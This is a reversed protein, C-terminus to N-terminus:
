QLKRTTTPWCDMMWNESGSPSAPVQETRSLQPRIGADVVMRGRDRDNLKGRDEAAVDKADDGRVPTRQDQQVTRVLSGAGGDEAPQRHQEHHDEEGSGTQQQQEGRLGAGGAGVTQVPQESARV